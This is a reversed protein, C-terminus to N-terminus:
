FMTMYSISLKTYIAILTTYKDKGFLDQVMADEVAKGHSIKFEKREEIKDSIDHAARLIMYSGDKSEEPDVELCIRKLDATWLIAKLLSEKDNYPDFADSLLYGTLAESQYLGHKIIEAMGNRIQENSLTTLFRPDLIIQSPEYFAKYAHKFYKGDRVENVRVKGGISSDSMAIITTPVLILDIGLKEAIYASINLIIGGGIAVVRQYGGKQYEEVLVELHKLTKLEAEVPELQVYTCTPNSRTINPYVSSDIIVLNDDLFHYTSLDSVSLTYSKVESFRQHNEPMSFPIIINYDTNDKWKEDVARSAQIIKEYTTM